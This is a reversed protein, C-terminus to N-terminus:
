DELLGEFGNESFKKYRKKIIKKNKKLRESSEKDKSYIYRLMLSTDALVGKYLREYEDIEYGMIIDKRKYM